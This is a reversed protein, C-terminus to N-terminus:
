NKASTNVCACSFVRESWDIHTCLRFCVCSRARSDIASEAFCTTARVTSLTSALARLSWVRATSPRTLTHLAAVRVVSSEGGSRLLRPAGIALSLRACGAAVCFPSSAARVERLCRPEVWGHATHRANAMTGRQTLTALTGCSPICIGVVVAVWSTENVLFIYYITCGICQSFKKWKIFIWLYKSVFLMCRFASMNEARKQTNKLVTTHLSVWLFNITNFSKLTYM